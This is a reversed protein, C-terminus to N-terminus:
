QLPVADKNGKGDDPQFTFPVLPWPFKDDAFRLQIQLLQNMVDRDNATITWLFLRSRYSMCVSAMLTQGASARRVGDMDKSFAMATGLFILNRNIPYSIISALRRFGDMAGPRAVLGGMKDELPVKKNADDDCAPLIEQLVIGGTPPDPIIHEEKEDHVRILPDGAGIELLAPFCKERKEPDGFIARYNHNGIKAPDETRFTSPYLLTMETSPLLFKAIGKDDGTVYTSTKGQGPGNPKLYYQARVYPCIAAFTLLLYLGSNEM